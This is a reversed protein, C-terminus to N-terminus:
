FRNAVKICVCVWKCRQQRYQAGGREAGCINGRMTIELIQAINKFCLALSTRCLGHSKVPLAQFVIRVVEQVEQYRQALASWAMKSAVHTNLCLCVHMKIQSVAPTYSKISSSQFLKKNPLMQALTLKQRERESSIFNLVM